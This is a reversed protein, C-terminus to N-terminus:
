SGSEQRGKLLVRAFWLLEDLMGAVKKDYSPDTIGGADDFLKNVNAFYVAKGIPVMHFEIMILRLQEVMRAGGLMGSSVGCIAVPKRHYQDSRLDLMMKLEGPYGHNYEPVVMIFGDASTAKEAFRKATDSEETNDTAPIRYDRVDILETTVESRKQLAALVFRAALESKRGERATGLIIPIFFSM